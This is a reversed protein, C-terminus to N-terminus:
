HHPPAYPQFHTQSNTHSHGLSQSQSQQHPYNMYPPTNPPQYVGQDKSNYGLGGQAYPLTAQSGQQSHLPTYHKQWTNGWAEARIADAREAQARAESMQLERQYAAAAKRKTLWGCCGYKYMIGFVVAFVILGLIVLFPYAHLRIIISLYSEGSPIIIWIKPICWWLVKVEYCVSPTGGNSGSGGGGGGGRGGGRASVLPLLALLTTLFFTTSSM